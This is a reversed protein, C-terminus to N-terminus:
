AKRIGKPGKASSEHNNGGIIQLGKPFMTLVEYGDETIVVDDEIRVGGAGSVYIGPEVTLVMGERLSQRNASHISPEEHVEMGLGHGIRHPFHHGYGGEKIVQRAADDIKGLQNGPQCEELAALNALLVLDYMERVEDKLEKFVVTRTIDSCYGNYIVGLDFIVTDGPQLPHNGTVGHPNSANSGFLVMPSFSMERIGAKKLEYEIKGLVELETVGEYLASIGIAIAEDAYQAAVKLHRIEEQSKILRMESLTQDLNQLTMGPFVNQLEYSRKLPLMKEEVGFERIDNAHVGLHTKLKSWVDETDQYSLYDYKWGTELLMNVEMEPLVFLPGQEVFLFIGVFREHPDYDFGSLYHINYRSTILGGTWQNDRLFDEVASIRSNM